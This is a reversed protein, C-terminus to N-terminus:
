EIRREMDRCHPGITIELIDEAVESRRFRAKRWSARTLRRSPNWGNDLAALAKQIGEEDLCM